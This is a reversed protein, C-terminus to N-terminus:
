DRTPKEARDIVLVDVPAKTSELKLGLQERVATFVSVGTPDTAAAEPRRLPARDPTYELEVDFPGQLGTRDIVNRSVPPELFQALLSLPVAHAVLHGPGLTQFGGCPGGNGRQSCDVDVKKLRPGLKGDNRDVRLEYAPLDRSENHVALKFRDALLPRLMTRIRNIASVQASTARGAGTEGSDIGVGQGEPVKAVVDFHDTNLWSPGGAIETDARSRGDPRPYAVVLLERVTACTMVFRGGALSGDRDCTPSQNPKVSAAEFAPPAQSPRAAQAHPRALLFLSTLVTTLLRMRM